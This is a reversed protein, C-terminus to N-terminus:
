AARDLLATVRARLDGVTLHSEIVARTADNPARLVGLLVHEARIRDDKRALAERLSLEIVKKAERSFPIHGGFWRRSKKDVPRDLADQGFNAALTERVADLDIGISKLAEADDDGLEDGRHRQAVVTRVETANLGAETFVSALGAEPQVLVGLLVHEVDIRDHGLERAEEQALVVAVKADRTFREFM